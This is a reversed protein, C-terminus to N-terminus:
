LVQDVLSQPTHLRGDEGAAGGTAPNIAILPYDPEARVALANTAEDLDVFALCSDDPLDEFPERRPERRDLDGLPQILLAYRTRAATLPICRGDAAIGRLQDTDEVVRKIDAPQDPTTTM